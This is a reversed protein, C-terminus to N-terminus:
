HSRESLGFGVKGAAAFAAAQHLLAQPPNCILGSFPSPGEELDMRFVRERCRIEVVAEAGAARRRRLEGPNRDRDLIEEIDGAVHGCGARDHEFICARRCLSAGATARKRAAPNMGIPRVFM